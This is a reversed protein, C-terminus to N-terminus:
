LSYMIDTRIVYKTGEQLPFVAHLISQDQIIVKGYKPVISFWNENSYISTYGGKYEDNLYILITFKSVKNGERYEGDTHPKFEDGKTYKLFRFYPNIHSFNYGKFSVPIHDNIREYLDNALKNDTIIIRSSKRIETNISENFLAKTFGTQEAKNILNKCEEVTFVNDIEKLYGAKFM